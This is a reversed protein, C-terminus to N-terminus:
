AAARKRKRLFGRLILGFHICMGLGGILCAVYPVTWGPNRVVQLVTTRDENKFASQYFTEGRYRLPNNMYILVERDVGHEPDVLRVRSSFNKAVETGTYRDHAFDLLTLQYPKYYRRFRLELTYVSGDVQVAQPRGIYPSVLWTGLDQGGRTLTVYAAAVDIGNGTGPNPPEEVAFVGVGDGDTVTPLPEAGGRPTMPTGRYLTANAFFREVRVGFPLYDHALEAGPDLRSEPIAVVADRDQPSPDVIALEVERSDAAFDVTQGEDIEMNTEIALQDTILEGVLLLILGAHILIVGSRRWSLKFRVYHAAILNILMAGGVLYGGPLFVPGLYDVHAIWCRFYDELVTWIGKELQAWTGAFILLMSLLLLIVTLRLSALAELLLGPTLRLPRAEAPRQPESM